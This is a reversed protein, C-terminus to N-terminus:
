IRASTPLGFLLILTEQLAAKRMRSQQYRATSVRKSKM